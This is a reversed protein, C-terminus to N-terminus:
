INKVCIARGAQDIYLIVVVTIRSFAVQEHRNLLDEIYRSIISLKDKVILLGENEASVDIEIASCVQLFMLM